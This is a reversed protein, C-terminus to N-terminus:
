QELVSIGVFLKICIRQAFWSRVYKDYWLEFIM